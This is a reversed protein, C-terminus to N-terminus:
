HAANAAKLWFYFIVKRNVFLLSELACQIRNLVRDRDGTQKDGTEREEDARDSDHVDGEDAHLLPRFLDARSLRQTRSPARDKQLEQDFRGRETEETSEDPEHQRIQQAEPNPFGKGRKRDM